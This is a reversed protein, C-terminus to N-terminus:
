ALLRPFWRCGRTYIEASFTCRVWETYRFISNRVTYGVAAAGAWQAFASSSGDNVGVISKAAAQLLPVLSKGEVCLKVLTSNFPCPPPVAAAGLALEVVTPYIDIAQVISSIVAPAAGAVGASSPFPPPSASLPRVFILPIHLAHEFNTCKAWRGQEGLHWGHDGWLLILTNPAAGSLDLANLVTGVQADTFSVVAAYAIRQLLVESSPLNALLTANEWYDSGFQLIMDDYEWLEHTGKESAWVVPSSAAPPGRPVPVPISASTNSYLDFYKKPAFHPLHPKHFGVALFWPPARGEGGVGQGDGAVLINLQHVANAAIM